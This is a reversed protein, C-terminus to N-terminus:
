LLVTSKYYENKVVLTTILLTVLNILTFDKQYVSDSKM